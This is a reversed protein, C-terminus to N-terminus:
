IMGNCFKDWYQTLLKNGGPTFGVGLGPTPTFEGFVAGKDTAYFDVRVFIEYSKSLKVACDIMEQLCEPMPQEKGDPYNTTLNPLQDWSEDYWSTVGNTNSLRNIVQICAIQGNFM